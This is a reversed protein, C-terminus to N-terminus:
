GNLEVTEIVWAEAQPEHGLPAQHEPDFGRLRRLLWREFRWDAALREGASGREYDEVAEESVVVRVTKSRKNPRTPDTGLKWSVFLIWDGPEYPPEVFRADAPFVSEAIARWKVAGKAM